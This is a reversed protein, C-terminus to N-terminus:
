AIRARTRLQGPTIRVLRKCHFSLQSQDSFGARAAVRCYDSDCDGNFV